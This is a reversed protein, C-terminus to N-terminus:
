LFHILIFFKVELSMNKNPYKSYLPPIIYEYTNTKLLYTSSAPVDDPTIVRHLAGVKYHAYAACNVFYDGLYIQLMENSLSIPLPSATFPCPGPSARVEYMGKVDFSFYSNDPAWYPPGLMSFDILYLGDPVIVHLKSLAEEAQVNIAKEVLGPVEKQILDMIIPHFVYELDNYIWSAGGHFILKLDGSISFVCASSAVTPKGNQEGVEVNFIINVGTIVIDQM